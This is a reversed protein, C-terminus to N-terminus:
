KKQTNRGQRIINTELKKTDVHKHRKCHRNMRIYNTTNNKWINIINYFIHQKCKTYKTLKNVNINRTGRRTNTIQHSRCIPKFNKNMTKITMFQSSIGRNNIIYKINKLQMKMFCIGIQELANKLGYIKRFRSSNPQSKIIWGKGRKSIRRCRTTM